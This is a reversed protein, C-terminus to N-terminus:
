QTPLRVWLQVEASARAMGVPERYILWRLWERSSLEGEDFVEQWRFRQGMYGAPREERSRAWTLLATAQPQAGVSAVARARPYDRLYWAAWPELSREYDIDMWLPDGIQRSSLSAVLAELDRLQVSAPRYTLGERPDRATQYAVATTLRVSRCIMLALLLAAGVRLASLREGWFLYVVWAVLLLGWTVLAHDLYASQGTQLYAFLRVFGVAVALGALLFILGDVLASGPVLADWLRELGRAALIVLPLLVDTLWLPERHGLAIALVLALGVWFILFVDLTERRRLGNVAGVIALAVTLLEYDLLMRPYAWWPLGSTGPALGGAWRGLLEVSAGIGGLNVLFGSAFFLFLGGGWLLHERRALDALLGRLNLPQEQGSSRWWLILGFVLMAFVTTYIGPGATLGLALAMIGLRLDRVRKSALYRYLALLLLASAAATLISGEAQRSFYVWTPALALLLAAALAGKHGLIDRAFYPLFILGSGVLAPLLRAAADSARTLGFLVLHADYLLPVYELPRWTSGRLTRWAALATNAESEQLPWRGLAALRVALGALLILSYLAVEFTLWPLPVQTPGNLQVARRGDDRVQDM